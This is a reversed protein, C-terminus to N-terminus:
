EFTYTIDIPQSGAEIRVTRRLPTLAGNRIEIHYTGPLLSMRMFPPTVGRKVGDVYVEGWPYVHLRVPVPQMADATPQTQALQAAASSAGRSLDNASAIRREALPPPQQPQQQVPRPSAVPPTPAVVATTPASQMASPANSAQQVAPAVQTSQASQGPTTMPPSAVVAPQNVPPTALATTSVSAAPAQAANVVGSVAPPQPTVPVTPSALQATGSGSGNAALQAPTPTPVPSFPRIVLHLLAVGVLVVVGVVLAPVGITKWPSATFLDQVWSAPAARTRLADEDAITSQAAAAAAAHVTPTTRDATSDNTQHTTQHVASPQAAGVQAAVGDRATSSALADRQVREDRTGSAQVAGSREAVPESQPEAQARPAADALRTSSSSSSSAAAQREGDTPEGHRDAVVFVGPAAEHLGLLQAFAAVSDPRDEIRLALAKDIAALVRPSFRMEGPLARTALPRYQDQISRVVAAPPVEGTLLAHMVAGLAYIDTWPGQRFAPDDTYQEIPAYGPKLMMATEDVIDGILKRAAGFDLLVPKGGPQVLINDLAIDRHFCQARHLVDLAGLLAALMALLEPEGMHLGKAALQKLTQGEYFPMVMYATGHSEWFHLVKLLGPHDFQALLRAENLFAARGAEFAESFRPSRLAVTYDGARAALMAPMYEKVAVARQLKRDFARYVIGFGGIGLVSDLQFEGLRHGNPLPRIPDSADRDASTEGEAFRSETM